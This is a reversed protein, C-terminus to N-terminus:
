KMGCDIGGKLAGRDLEVTEVGRDARRLGTPSSKLEWGASRHHMECVKGWGKKARRFTM